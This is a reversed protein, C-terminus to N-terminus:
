HDYPHYKRENRPGYIFCIYWMLAVGVMGGLIFWSSVFIALVTSVAWLPIMSWFLLKMGESMHPLRPSTMWEFTVKM